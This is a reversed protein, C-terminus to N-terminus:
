VHVTHYHGFISCTRNPQQWKLKQQQQQRKCWDIERDRENEGGTENMKMFKVNCCNLRWKQVDCLKYLINPSHFLSLSLSPSRSRNLRVRYIDHWYIHMNYGVSKTQDKWPPQTLMIVTIQKKFYSLDHSTKSAVSCSCCCWCCFCCIMRQTWRLEYCM